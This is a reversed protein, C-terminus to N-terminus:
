RPKVFSFINRLLNEMQLALLTFALPSLAEKQERTSPIDSSNVEAALLGRGLTKHPASSTVFKKEKANEKFKEAIKVKRSKQESACCFWKPQSSCQKERQILHLTKPKTSVQAEM